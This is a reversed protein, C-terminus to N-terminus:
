RVDRLGLGMRLAGGGWRVRRFGLKVAFCSDGERSKARAVM